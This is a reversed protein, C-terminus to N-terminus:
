ASALRFWQVAEPVIPLSPYGAGLAPVHLAPAGRETAAPAPRTALASLFGGNM